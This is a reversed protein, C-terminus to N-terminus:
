ASSRVGARRPGRGRSCGTGEGERGLAGRGGHRWCVRQTAATARAGSRGAAQWRVHRAPTGSGSRDPSAAAGLSISRVAATPATPSTTTTTATTITPHLLHAGAPRPPPVGHCPKDLCRKLIYALRCWWDPHVCACVHARSPGGPGMSAVWPEGARRVRVKGQGFLGGWVCEERFGCGGM